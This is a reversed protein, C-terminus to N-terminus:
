CATEKWSTGQTGLLGWSDRSADQPNSVKLPKVWLARRQCNQPCRGCIQEKFIDKFILSMYILVYLSILYIRIYTIFRNGLYIGNREAVRGMGLALDVRLTFTPSPISWLGWM